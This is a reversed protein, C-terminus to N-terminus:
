ASSSCKGSETLIIQRELFLTPADPSWPWVGSTTPYVLQLVEFDNGGYLWRAWGFYEEFHTKSVPEFTCDFGELFGGYFNGIEFTEGAQVRKNYDNIVFHAIAQKLGVVVLEPKGSTKTIGISYSFPPLDGEELVHQVQCGFQDIDQLARQEEPDM